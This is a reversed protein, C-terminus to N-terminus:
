ETARKCIAEHELACRCHKACAFSEKIKTDNLLAALGLDTIVIEEGGLDCYKEALRVAEDPLIM